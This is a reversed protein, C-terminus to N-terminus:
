AEIEMSMYHAMIPVRTTYPRFLEENLHKQLNSPLNSLTSVDSTRIRKKHAFHMSKICKWIRQGLETSIKNDLLFRRLLAQQKTQESHSRRLQTMANTISGLFSSFTILAFLLVIISYTREGINYPRIEMSAPTFQTLSWHLSTTYKFEVPSEEMDNASIWNPREIERFYNGIGYWGCALYHNLLVIFVVTLGVSCMTSVYESKILDLFESLTQQVKMFRLLRIGRLLRSLRSTKGFRLFGVADKSSVTM